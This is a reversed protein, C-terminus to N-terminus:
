LKEGKNQLNKLEMIQERLLIAREFDLEKSAQHM